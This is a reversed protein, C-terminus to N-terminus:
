LNKQLRTMDSWLSLYEMQAADDSKRRKDLTSMRYLWGILVILPAIISLVIFISLM